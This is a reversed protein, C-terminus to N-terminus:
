TVANRIGDVDGCKRKISHGLSSRAGDKPHTKMNMHIVRRVDMWEAHLVVDPGNRVIELPTSPAQWVRAIAVPDCKFVPDDKFCSAEM